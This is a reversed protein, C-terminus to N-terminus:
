EALEDHIRAISDTGEDVLGGHYCLTRDVDYEALTGVSETAEDMEPTFGENPGSLDGEPATLADGAVLLDAEPFVLSVHGPSHGPTGVVRMPGAETRFTVGNEIEVDVPVGVSDGGKVPDKRGDIYPTEERAAFVAADTRDLVDPLSGVHDGDHHTVLVAWVDDWGFGLDDLHVSLQEIAGPLGVDVLVLGRPTEVAAPHVVFEGEDREFSLPLAHVASTETM